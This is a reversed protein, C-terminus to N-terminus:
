DLSFIGDSAKEAVSILEGVDSRYADVQRIATATDKPIELGLEKAQKVFSDSKKNFANIKDKIKKGVSAAKDIASAGQKAQKLATEYDGKIELYEKVIDQTLGLEVEVKSLEVAEKEKGYKEYKSLDINKGTYSM